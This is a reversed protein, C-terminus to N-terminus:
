RVYVVWYGNENIKRARKGKARLNEARKNADSKKKHRSAVKFKATKTYDEPTTQLYAFGQEYSM